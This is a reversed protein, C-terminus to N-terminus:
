IRASSILLPTTDCALGQRQKPGTGLLRTTIIVKHAICIVPVLMQRQIRDDPANGKQSRTEVM